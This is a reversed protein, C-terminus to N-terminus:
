NSGLAETAVLHTLNTGIFSLMKEQLNILSQKCVRRLRELLPRSMGENTHWIHSLPTSDTLWKNKVQETAKARKSFTELHHPM